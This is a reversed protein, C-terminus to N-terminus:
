SSLEIFNAFQRQDQKVRQEVSSLKRWIKTTFVINKGTNVLVLFTFHLVLRSDSRVLVFYVPVKLVIIQLFKRVSTTQNRQTRRTSQQPRKGGRILSIDLECMKLYFGVIIQAEGLM